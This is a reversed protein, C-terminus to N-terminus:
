DLINPLTYNGAYAFRFQDFVREVNIIGYGWISNPYMDQTQRVASKQFFSQIQTAYFYGFEPHEINWQLFLAMIGASHAAAVSTGSRTVFRNRLGPGSVNVGPAALDPKVRNGTVYGRSANAYISGNLHNYATMTMVVSANGPVTITNEPNANLFYTDSRLFQRLPLWMNFNRQKGEDAYVRFTWIGPTPNTLRVFILEEGTYIEVMQYAVYIESRTLPLQIVEEQGFRPPIRELREGQPSVIGLAFTTPSNGWLELTLVNQGEGVNLEVTEYEMNEELSGSYHLRESGENGAPASVMIWVNELLLSLYQELFTYGLHGGNSSGVGILISIPRNKSQAYRYLYDVAYIIDTESYATTEEPVGFFNKLYPKAEKLKVVAIESQDAIGTFDNERNQGGAAIGALFTGHGNEDRSPVIEYPEPVSLAQDIQAKTYVTGYYASPIEDSNEFGSITQDWIVGIRSKGSSDFFLSNQYDIGTDVVGVIVNKGGLALNNSNQVQKVGIAEMNSSDMLGFLKPIYSYPTRELLTLYDEKRPMHLIAIKSNIVNVCGTRYIEEAGEFGKLFNISYDSYDNSYIMEECTM